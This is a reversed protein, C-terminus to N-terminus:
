DRRVERITGGGLVMEERYFVAAQGPAPARQPERFHVLAEEGPLLQVDAPRELGRYRTMVTAEFADETVAAGTHVDSVLIESAFVAEEPGVILANRDPDLAVVYWRGGPLGLGRRQGITYGALGRHEGLRNGSTDLIPGPALAEPAREEILRRYDDDPIFCIEQSEEREAVPLEADAAIERVQSKTLGGVPFRTHRLEEASLAYLVYSQDKAPDTARCLVPGQPSEAIRAHHGTALVDAGLKRGWERLAGWKVARNCAICPNPTRGDAYARVFPAIVEREFVERFNVVYHEIGLRDCVDAADHGSDAAGRGSARTGECQGTPSWVDITVGTVTLGERVVLLAAVSSDVGGSMAVVVHQPM